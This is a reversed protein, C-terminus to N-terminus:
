APPEREPIWDRGLSAATLPEGYVVVSAAIRPCGLDPRMPCTASCWSDDQCPQYAAPGAQRCAETILEAM